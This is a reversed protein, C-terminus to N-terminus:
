KKNGVILPCSLTVSFICIFNLNAVSLQRSIHMDNIGVPPLSSLQSSSLTPHIKRVQFCSFRVFTFCFNINTKKQWIITVHFSLSSLYTVHFCATISLLPIVIAVSVYISNCVSAQWTSLLLKLYAWSAGYGCCFISCNFHHYLSFSCRM